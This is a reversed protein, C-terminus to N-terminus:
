MARERTVLKCFIRLNRMLGEETELEEELADADEETDFREETEFM